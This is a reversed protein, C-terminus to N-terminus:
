CHSGSWHWGSRHWMSCRWRWRRSTTWCWRGRHCWSWRRSGASRCRDSVCGSTRSGGAGAPPEKSVPGLGDPARGRAGPPDESVQEDLRDQSPNSWQHRGLDGATALQRTWVASVGPACSMSCLDGDGPEGVGRTRPLLSGPSTRSMRGSRAVRTKALADVVEDAHAVGPAM